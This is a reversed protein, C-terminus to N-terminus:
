TFCYYAAIILQSHNSFPFHCYKWFASTSGKRNQFDCPPRAKVYHWAPLTSQLICFLLGEAVLSQPGYLLRRNYVQEQYNQNKAQCLCVRSHSPTLWADAHFPFISKCGITSSCMLCYLIWSSTISEVYGVHETKSPPYAPCTAAAPSYSCHHAAQAKCGM